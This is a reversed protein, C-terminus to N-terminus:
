HRRKIYDGKQETCTFFNVSNSTMNNLLYNNSFKRCGEQFLYKTQIYNYNKRKISVLDENLYIFVFFSPLLKSGVCLVRPTLFLFCRFISAKYIKGLPLHSTLLALGKQMRLPQGIENYSSTGFIILSQLRDSFSVETKLPHNYIVKEIM